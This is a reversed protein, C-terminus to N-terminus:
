WRYRTLLLARRSSFLSHFLLVRDTDASVIRISFDPAVWSVYKNYTPPLMVHRAGMALLRDGMGRSLQM